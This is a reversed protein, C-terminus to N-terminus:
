FSLGPEIWFQLLLSLIYITIQISNKVEVRVHLCCTSRFRRYGAAVSCPTVAWFFEIQIEVVM